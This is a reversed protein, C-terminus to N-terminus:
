HAGGVVQLVAYTLEIGFQQPQFLQEAAYVFIRRAGQYYEILYKFAGIREVFEVARAHEKFRDAIKRHASYDGRVVEFKRAHGVRALTEVVM